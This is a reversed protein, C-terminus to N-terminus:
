LVFNQSDQLSLKLLGRTSTYPLRRLRCDQSLTQTRGDDRMGGFKRINLFAM